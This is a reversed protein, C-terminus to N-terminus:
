HSSPKNWSFDSRYTSFKPSSYGMSQFSGFLWKPTFDLMKLCRCWAFCTSFHVSMPMQPDVLKTSYRSLRSACKKLLHVNSVTKVSKEHSIGTMDFCPFSMFPISCSSRIFIELINWYSIWDWQARANKFCVKPDWPSARFSQLYHIANYWNPSQRCCSLLCPLRCAVSDPDRAWHSSLLQSSCTTGPKKSLWGADDLYKFSWSMTLNLTAKGSTWCDRMYSIVVTDAHFAFVHTYCSIAM